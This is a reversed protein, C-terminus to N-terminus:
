FFGAFSIYKRIEGPEMHQYIKILRCMFNPDIMFLLYYELYRDVGSYRVKGEVMGGNVPKARFHEVGFPIFGLDDDRLLKSFSDSSADEKLGIDEDLLIIKYNTKADAKPTIEVSNSM